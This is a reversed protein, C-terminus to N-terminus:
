GGLIDAVKGIETIEVSLAEAKACLLRASLPDIGAEICARYYRSIKLGLEMARINSEIVKEGKASFLTSIQAKLSELPLGIYDAAAGLMVMNESKASGALKAIAESDILVHNRISAIKDLIGDIPSYDTINVFPAISSVVAGNPSLYHVYRLSELPEVSLILDACGEPILDSNIASDSIRLNAQVAGGRQSMGHVEAQKFNLGESLAASCIIYSISLIGQGGVGSLIIDKHMTM